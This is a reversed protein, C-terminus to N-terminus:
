GEGPSNWRRSLFKVCVAHAMSKAYQILAISLNTLRRYFSTMDLVTKERNQKEIRLVKGLVRDGSVPADLTMLADGKTRLMIQGYSQKWKKIIRHLIPRGQSNKFFILDGIHLGSPQIKGVTVIDGDCLFPEMSKGTVRVRLDAGRELVEGFLETKCSELRRDHIPGNVPESKNNNHSM